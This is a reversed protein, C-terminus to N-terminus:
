RREGSSISWSRPTGTPLEKALVDSFMSLGPMQPLLVVRTHMLAQGIEQIVPMVFMAAGLGPAIEVAPGSDLDSM